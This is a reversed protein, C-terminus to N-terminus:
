QDTAKEASTPGSAATRTRDAREPCWGVLQALEPGVVAIRQRM